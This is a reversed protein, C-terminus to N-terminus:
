NDNSRRVEEIVEDCDAESPATVSLMKPEWGEFKEAARKEAWQRSSYERSEPKPTDSIVGPDQSWYVLFKTFFEM